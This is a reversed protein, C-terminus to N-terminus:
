QLIQSLLSMSSSLYSSGFMNLHNVTHYLAYINVRKQYGPEKPIKAHYADYFNSDFGGFVKMIGLDAESHGWFPAPDLIVPNDNDDVAWNGSWLDGHNLSPRIDLGEFYTDLKDLLQQAPKNLQPYRSSALDFQYALRRRLFEIWDPCWTNVQPTSGITNDCEFGFQGPGKALHLDALQEGLKRQVGSAGYKSGLSIYEMALFGYNDNDLAGYVYPTPVRITHTDDLAKLGKAESGFMEVVEDLTQKPSSECTKVFIQKGNSSTCLYADSICGGGINEVSELVEDKAITSSQQLKETVTRKIADTLTM